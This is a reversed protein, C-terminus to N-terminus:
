IQKIVCRILLYTTILNMANNQTTKSFVTIYFLTVGYVPCIHREFALYTPVGTLVHVGM